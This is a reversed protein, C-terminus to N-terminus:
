PSLSAPGTSLYAAPAQLGMAFYKWAKAPARLTPTMAGM